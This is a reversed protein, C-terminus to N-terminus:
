IGTGTGLRPPNLPPRTSRVGRRKQQTKEKEFFVRAAWIRHNSFKLIIYRGGGNEFPVDAVINFFVQM